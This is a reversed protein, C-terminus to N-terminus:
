VVELVLKGRLGGAEARRHAEFVRGLRLVADIVPV